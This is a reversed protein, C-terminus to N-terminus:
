RHCDLRTKRKYLAFQWDRLWPCNSYGRVIHGGGSGTSILEASSPRVAPKRRRRAVSPGTSATFTATMGSGM